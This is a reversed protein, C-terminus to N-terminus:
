VSLATVVFTQPLQQAKLLPESSKEVLFFTNRQKARSDTTSSFDNSSKESLYINLLNLSMEAELRIANQSTYEVM